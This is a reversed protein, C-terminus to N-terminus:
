FAYNIGFSVAATPLSHINLGWNLDTDVTEDNEFNDVSTHTKVVSFGLNIANFYVDLSLHDNLAYNLGPTINLGFSTYRNDTGETTVTLHNGTLLENGEEEVVTKDATKFAIPISAEVFLTLNNLEMANYRFYPTVNIMNYNTTWTGTYETSGWLSPAIPSTLTRVDNYHSFGLIIGASMKDNIQYGFKPMIYFNFDKPGTIETTTTTGGTTNTNVSSNSNGGFGLNGGVIFQANAAFAFAALTLTLIVKKM